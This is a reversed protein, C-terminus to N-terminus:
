PIGGPDHGPAPIELNRNEERETGLKSVSSSSRGDGGSIDRPKIGWKERLKSTVSLNKELNASESNRGHDNQKTERNKYNGERVKTFNDQNILWGFDAVFPRGGRRPAARGTLFDSKRVDTFFSKWFELNPHEKWRAKLASQRRPTMKAVRPLGPCHEHYLALIKKEYLSEEGPEFEESLVQQCPAGGGELPPSLPTNNKNYKINDITPAFTQVLPPSTTQVVQPSITQVPAVTQVPSTTQVVEESNKKWWSGNKKYGESTKETNWQEYDKNIGIENTKQDGSRSIFIMGMEELNQIAYVVSRKSLNVMEAIQSYSIADTKKKWGYTKRLIAHFVKLEARSIDAKMMAEYLEMSIQIYGDELQPNAM